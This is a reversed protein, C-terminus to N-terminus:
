LAIYQGHGVREIKDAQELERIQNFTQRRSVFEQSLIEATSVPANEVIFQYIRDLSSVDSLAGDANSLASDCYSFTYRIDGDTEEVFLRPSTRLGETQSFRLIWDVLSYSVSWSPYGDLGMTRALDVPYFCQVCTNKDYAHRNFSRPLVDKPCGVSGVEITEGSLTRVGFADIRTMGNASLKRYACLRYWVPIRSLEFRVKDIHSLNIVSSFAKCVFSIDSGGADLCTLFDSIWLTSIGVIPASDADYFPCDVSSARSVIESRFFSQTVM